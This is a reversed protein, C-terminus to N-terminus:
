ASVNNVIRGRLFEGQIEEVAVPTDRTLLTYGIDALPAACSMAEPHVIAYMKYDYRGSGHISSLHISHKLVAAGDV